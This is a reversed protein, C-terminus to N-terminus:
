FWCYGGGSRALPDVEDSPAAEGGGPPPLVDPVLNLTTKYEYTETTSVPGTAAMYLIPQANSAYWRIPGSITAKTFNWGQINM